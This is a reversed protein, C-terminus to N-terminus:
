IIACCVYLKRNKEIQKWRKEALLYRKFAKKQRKKEIAKRSWAGRKTTIKNIFKAHQIKWLFFRKKIHDCRSFFDFKKWEEKKKDKGKSIFLFNTISKMKNLGTKRQTRLACQGQWSPQRFSFLAFFFVGFAVLRACTLITSPEWKVRLLNSLFCFWRRTM